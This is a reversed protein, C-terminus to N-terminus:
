RGRYYSHVACLAHAAEGLGSGSTNPCVWGWMRTSLGPVSLSSGDRRSQVCEGQGRSGYPKMNWRKLWMKWRCVCKRSAGKSMRKTQTHVCTQACKQARGTRKWVHSCTQMESAMTEKRSCQFATFMGIEEPVCFCSHNCDHSNPSLLQCMWKQDCSRHAAQRESEIQFPFILTRWLLYFQTLKCEGRSISLESVPSSLALISTM